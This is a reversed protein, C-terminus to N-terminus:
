VRPRAPTAIEPDTVRSWTFPRQAFARRLAPGIGRGRRRARRAGLARVVRRVPVASCTPRTTAYLARMPHKELGLWTTVRYHSRLQACWRDADMLSVPARALLLVVQAAPRRIRAAIPVWGTGLCGFPRFRAM